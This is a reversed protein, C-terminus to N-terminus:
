QKKRALFDRGKGVDTNIPVGRSCPGIRACEDEDWTALPIDTLASFNPVGVVAEAEEGGRNCLVGVGIVEAGAARAADVVKRASGGTTVVDEVILARRDRVLRDYGRKLVFSKRKVVLEEGEQLLITQGNVLVETDDKHAKLLPTETREAYIGLVERGTMHTLHYAVWQSLIVGGVAPAIVIDPTAARFRRALENCLLATQDAHPYVADKNVYAEGHRGSTYVLHSGTIIAGLKRLTEMINEKKM